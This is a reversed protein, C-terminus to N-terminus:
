HPVVHFMDLFLNLESYFIHTHTHTHIYIYIYIYIYVCVCVYMCIYMCVYMSPTNRNMSIPRYSADIGHKFYLYRDYLFCRQKPVTWMKVYHGDICLLWLTCEREIERILVRYLSQEFPRPSCLFARSQQLLLPASHSFNEACVDSARPAVSRLKAVGKAM